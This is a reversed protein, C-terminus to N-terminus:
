STKAMLTNDGAFNFNGSLHKSALKSAVHLTANM